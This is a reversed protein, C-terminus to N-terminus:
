MFSKPNYLPILEFPLIGLSFNGRCGLPTPSLSIKQPKHNQHWAVFNSPFIVAFLLKAEKRPKHYKSHSPTNFLPARMFEYM